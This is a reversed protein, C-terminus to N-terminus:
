EREIHGRRVGLGSREVVLDELVMDDVLFVIACDEQVDTPSCSLIMQRM